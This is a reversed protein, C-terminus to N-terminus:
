GCYEEANDNKVVFRKDCVSCALIERYHGDNVVYLNRDLMGVTCVPCSLLPIKEGQLKKLRSRLVEILQLDPQERGLHKSILQKYIRVISKKAM